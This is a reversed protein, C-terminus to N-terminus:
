EGNENAKPKSTHFVRDYDTLWKELDKFYDQRYFYYQGHLPADYYKEHHWDPFNNRMIQVQKRYYNLLIDAESLPRLEM